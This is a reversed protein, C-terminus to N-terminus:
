GGVSITQYGRPQGEAELAWANDSVPVTATIGDALDVKIASVDSPVVGAVYVKGSAGPFSSAEVTAGRALDDEGTSCSYGVGYVGDNPQNRSLLVCVGGGISKAIWVSIASTDVAVRRISTAIPWGSHAGGPPELPWTPGPNTDGPSSPPTSVLTLGTPATSDLAPYAAYESSTDARAQNGHGGLLVAAAAFAAVAVLVLVARPRLLPRVGDPLPPM